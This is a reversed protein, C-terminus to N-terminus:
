LSVTINWKVMHWWHVMNEQWLNASAPLSLLSSFGWTLHLM